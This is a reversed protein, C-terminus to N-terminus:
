MAIVIRWRRLRRIASPVTRPIDNSPMVAAFM